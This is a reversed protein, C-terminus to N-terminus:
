SPALVSSFASVRARARSSPGRPIRTLMTAGPSMRVGVDSNRMWPSRSSCSAAIRGRFRTPSGSSMALAM